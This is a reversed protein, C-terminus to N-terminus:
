RKLIVSSPPAAGPTLIFAGEASFLVVRNPDDCLGNPAYGDRLGQRILKEKINRITQM